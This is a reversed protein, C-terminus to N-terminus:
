KNSNENRLNKNILSRVKAAMQVDNPTTRVIEKIQELM